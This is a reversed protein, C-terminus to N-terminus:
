LKIVKVTVERSSASDHKARLSAKWTSDVLPVPASQFGAQGSFTSYDTPTTVVDETV